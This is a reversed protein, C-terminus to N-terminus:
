WPSSSPRGSTMSRGSSARWSGVQNRVSRRASRGHRIGRASGTPPRRAASRSRGQRRGTAAAARATPPARGRGGARRARISARARGHRRQAQPALVVEAGSRDLPQGPEGDVRDRQAVAVDDHDRVRAGRGDLQGRAVSSSALPGARRGCGGRRCSPRAGRTTPDRGGRRAPGGSRGGAPGRTVGAAGIVGTRADSQLPTRCWRASVRQRRTMRVGTQDLRRLPVTAAPHESARCGWRHEGRRVLQPHRSSVPM